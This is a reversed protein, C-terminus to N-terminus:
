RMLLRSMETHEPFLTLICQELKPTSPVCQQLSIVHLLEIRLTDAFRQREVESADRSLVIGAKAILVAKGLTVLALLHEKEVCSEKTLSHALTEVHFICGDAAFSHYVDTYLTYITTSLQILAALASFSRYVSNSRQVTLSTTVTLHFSQVSM